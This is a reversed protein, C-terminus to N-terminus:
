NQQLLEVHAEHQVPQVLLLLMSGVKAVAELITAVDAEGAEQVAQRIWAVQIALLLECDPATDGLQQQPEPKDDQKVAAHCYLMDLSHHEQLCKLVNLQV